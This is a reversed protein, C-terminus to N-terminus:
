HRQSFPSHIPSVKKVVGERERETDLGVETNMDCARMATPLMRRDYKGAKQTTTRAPVKDVAPGQQSLPQALSIYTFSYNHHRRRNNTAYPPYTQSMATFNIEIGGEVEPLFFKATDLKSTSLHSEYHSTRSM